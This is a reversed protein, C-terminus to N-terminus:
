LDLGIGLDDHWSPPPLAELAEVEVLLQRREVAGIGSDDLPSAKETALQKAGERSLSERVVDVPDHEDRQPVHTLDDEIARGGVAHLVNATRGRSLAVCGAERYLDDTGLVLCRDVTMGQSKHITTAYAHAVHGAELYQAPLTRLGDDLRVRMTRRDPDVREVTARDGNRVGLRYDNRLCIIEDGAQYPREDIELEPGWLSGTAVLHRRARGNLDDVDSRRIAIMAADEGRRQWAFWDDAMRQRVEIADPGTVLRGQAEFADLGRGIDGSRLEDLARREWEEVQRRNETLSVPSMLRNLAGLM